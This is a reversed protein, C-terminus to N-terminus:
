TQEASAGLDDSRRGKSIQRRPCITEHDLQDCTKKSGWFLVTPSQNFKNRNTSFVIPTSTTFHPHSRKKEAPNVWPQFLFTATGMELLLLVQNEGDSRCRIQLHQPELSPGPFNLSALSATGHHCRPEITKGLVVRM